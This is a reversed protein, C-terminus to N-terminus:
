ASRWQGGVWTGLVGLGDDLLTLDAIYGPALRGRRDGMGIFEAPYLSAMRLAEERDLGLLSVANRVAAAMDLDAGALRGDETVLRGDRRHITEGYLTFSSADTGLPTMADTVLLLKGRPKAALALRLVAPHVHIGDLIIGCWTEASVLAAGAIGPERNAIPPMANFLHTFGRLGLGIAQRTRECSAASHAGALVLGAEALTRIDGDTVVEPALSLLVKGDPFASPLGALFAIDAEDPARVFAASHVGRRELSIFPGELHLGLVGSGPLRAAQSAAEAARHMKETEDTIFTPLLGTTGFRRHAAVITEIAAV